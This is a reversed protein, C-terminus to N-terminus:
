VDQPVADRIPQGPQLMWFAIISTSRVLAKGTSFINAGYPPTHMDLTQNSRSIEGVTRQRSSAARHPDVGGNAYRITQRYCPSPVNVTKAKIVRAAIEPAAPALRLM